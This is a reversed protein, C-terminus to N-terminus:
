PMGSNFRAAIAPEAATARELAPAGGKAVDAALRRPVNSAIVPWGHARAIELKQPSLLDARARRGLGVKAVADHRGRVPERM